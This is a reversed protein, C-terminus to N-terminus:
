GVVPGGDLAVHRGGFLLEEDYVGHLVLELELEGLDGVDVAHVGEM